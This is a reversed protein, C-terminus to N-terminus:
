SLDRRRFALWAILALGIILAVFIGAVTWTYTGNLILLPNYYHYPLLRAPWRLWSVDKELSGVIYGGLGILSALGIAMGRGARGFATIMLALAGYVLALLVAMFAAFAVHYLGIPMSVLKILLLIAITSVGGVIAVVMLGSLAKALLLRGRSIPRSLLLELTGDSEERALLSSGLGIALISLLLPLMLYFLRSNLYGVPSFLDNSAGFLSRASAPLHNLANNLQAAQGKISSYVVLELAVFATIGVSWWFSPWRRHWFTWKIVSKM